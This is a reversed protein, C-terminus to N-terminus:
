GRGNQALGLWSAVESLDAVFEDFAAERERDDQARLISSPHVTITVLEALDSELPRGRDRGVRVSPGIL